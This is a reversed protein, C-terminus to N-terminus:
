EDQQELWAIAEAVTEVDTERSFEISPGLQDIREVSGVSLDATGGEIERVKIGNRDNHWFVDYQKLGNQKAYEALERSAEDYTM